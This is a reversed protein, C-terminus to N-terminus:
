ELLSAATAEPPEPHGSEPIAPVNAAQFPVRAACVPLGPQRLAEACHRRQAPWGQFELPGLSTEVKDPIMLFAPTQAFALLALSAAFLVLLALQKTPNM